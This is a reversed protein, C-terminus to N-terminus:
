KQKLRTNKSELILKFFHDPELEQDLIKMANEYWKKSWLKELFFSSNWTYEELTLELDNATINNSEFLAIINRWDISNSDLWWGECFEQYNITKNLSKPTDTQSVKRQSLPKDIDYDLFDLVDDLMEKTFSSKSVKLKNKVDDTNLSSGLWINSFRNDALIHILLKFATKDEWWLLEKFKELSLGYPNTGKLTTNIENIAYTKVKVKVDMSLFDDKFLIKALRLVSKSTFKWEILLNSKHHKLLINWYTSNRLFEQISDPNGADISKFIKKNSKYLYMQELLQVLHNLKKDSFEEKVKLWVAELSFKEWYIYEAIKNKQGAKIHKISSYNLTKQIYSLYHISNNGRANKSMIKRLPVDFFLVWDTSNFIDEIEERCKQKYYNIDHYLWLLEQIKKNELDTYSLKYKKLFVGLSKVKKAVEWIWIWELLAIDTIMPTYEAFWENIESLLTDEAIRNLDIGNLNLTSHKNIIHASWGTSVLVPKSTKNSKESPQKSEVKKCKNKKFLWKLENIKELDHVRNFTEGESERRFRRNNVSIIVQNQNEKDKIINSYAKTNKDLSNHDSFFIVGWINLADHYGIENSNILKINSINKEKIKKTLEKEQSNDKVYWFFEIEPHKIVEEILLEEIQELWTEQEIWNENFELSPELIIEHVNGHDNSSLLKQISSTDETNISTSYLSKVKKWLKDNDLWKRSFVIFEPQLYSHKKSLEELIKREKIWENKKNNKWFNPMDFFICKICKDQILNEELSDISSLIINNNIDISENSIHNHIFKSIDHNRVVLVVKKWSKDCDRAIRKIEDLPSTWKIVSPEIKESLSVANNNSSKLAANVGISLPNKKHVSRIPVRNIHWLWKSINKM